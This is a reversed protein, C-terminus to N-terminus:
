DIRVVSFNGDLRVDVDSGDALTVEVEWVHDADDSLEVESVTGSGVASLAAQSAKDADAPSVSRDGGNDDFADDNSNSPVPAPAQAQSPSDESRSLEISDDDGIADAIAVGVATGGLLLALAIGAGAIWFLPRRRRPAETVVPTPTVTTPTNDDPTTTM